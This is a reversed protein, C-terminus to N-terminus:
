NTGFDFTRDPLGWHARACASCCNQITPRNCCFSVLTVLRLHLRSGARSHNDSCTCVRLDLPLDRQVQFSPIIPMCEGFKVCQHEKLRDATKKQRSNEEKKKREMESPVRSLSARASLRPCCISGYGDTHLTAPRIVFHHKVFSALCHVWIRLPQLRVCSLDM